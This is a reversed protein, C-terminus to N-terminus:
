HQVVVHAFWARSAQRLTAFYRGPLLNTTTITIRGYHPAVDERLMTRGAENTLEITVPESLSAGLTMTVHDSAPNPSIVMSNDFSAQEVRANEKLEYLGTSNSVFVEHSSTTFVHQINEITSYVQSSDWTTGGDSSFVLKGDTVAFGNQADLFAFGTPYRNIAPNPLNQWSSGGNTSRLAKDSYMLIVDGAPSADISVVDKMTEQHILKWTAGHDTTKYAMGGSIGQNGAYITGNPGLVLTAIDFFNPDAGSNTKSWTKGKDTSRYVPDNQGAYLYGLSDAIVRRTSFGPQQVVKWTKGQDTSIQYSDYDFLFIEGTPLAVLSAGNSPRNRIRTWQTADNSIYFGGTTSLYYEAGVKSMEFVAENPGIKQWSTSGFASHSFLLAFLAIVQFTCRLNM